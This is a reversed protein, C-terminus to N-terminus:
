SASYYKLDVHWPRGDSLESGFDNLVHVGVEMIAILSSIGAFVLGLFFIACLVRGMAGSEVTNYLVPVRLVHPVSVSHMAHTVFILFAGPKSFAVTSVVRCYEHYYIHENSGCQEYDNYTPM